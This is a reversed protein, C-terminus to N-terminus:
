KLSNTVDHYYLSKEDGGKNVLYKNDDSIWIINDIFEQQYEGSVLSYVSSKRQVLLINKGNNILKFPISDSLAGFDSQKFSMKLFYLLNGNILDYIRVLGRYKSGHRGISLLYREKDQICFYFRDFTDNFEPEDAKERKWLVKKANIDLCFLQLFANMAVDERWDTSTDEYKKGIIYAGDKTIDTLYTNAEPYVFEIKGFKNYVTNEIIIRKGDATAQISSNERLPKERKWLVKGERSICEIFDNPEVTTMLCSSGDPFIKIVSSGDDSWLQKGQKDFLITKIVECNEGTLHPDNVGRHISYHQTVECSVYEGNDSILVRGLKVGDDTIIHKRKFESTEAKLKANNKSDDAKVEYKWLTNGKNDLYYLSSTGVWVNRKGERRTGDTLEQEYRNDKLIITGPDTTVAIRLGDSSVAVSNIETKFEKQWLLQPKAREASFVTSSVLILTM